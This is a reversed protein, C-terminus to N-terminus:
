KLFLAGSTNARRPLALTRPPNQCRFQFLPNQVRSQFGSRSLRSVPAGSHQGRLQANGAHHHLTDPLAVVDLGVAHLFEFDGIVRIKFIVYPVNDAKIEVRRIASQHEADIFLALNLCQVPGSRDQRQPRSQRFALCMVVYPVPGRGQKGGEIDQIALDDATARRAM